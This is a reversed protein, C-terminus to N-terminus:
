EEGVRNIVDAAQEAKEQQDIYDILDTVQDVPTGLAERCIRYAIDYVKRKDPDMDMAELARAFAKRPISLVELSARVEAMVENAEQRTLKANNVREAGDKIAQIIREHRENENKQDEVM